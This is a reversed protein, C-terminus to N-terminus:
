RLGEEKQGSPRRWSLNLAYKVGRTVSEVRRPHSESWPWLGISGVPMRGDDWTQRPFLLAGGGYGENLRVSGGLVAAAPPKQVAGGAEGAEQRVVVIDDVVLDAM